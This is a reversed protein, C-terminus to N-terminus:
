RIIKLNRASPGPAEYPLAIVLLARVRLASFQAFLIVATLLGNLFMATAYFTVFPEVPRLQVGAFPRSIFFAALLIAPLFRLAIRRQMRSPSARTLDPLGDDIQAGATTEM